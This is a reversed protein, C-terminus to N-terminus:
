NGSHKTQKLDPQLQQFLDTVTAWRRSSVYNLWHFCLLCLALGQSRDSWSFTVFCCPFMGIWRFPQLLKPLESSLLEPISNTIKCMQVICHSHVVWRAALLGFDVHILCIEFTCRACQRYAICVVWAPSPAKICVEGGGRWSFPICTKCAGYETGYVPM